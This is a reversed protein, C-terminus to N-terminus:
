TSETTALVEFVQLSMISLLTAFNKNPQLMGEGGCFIGQENFHSRAVFKM